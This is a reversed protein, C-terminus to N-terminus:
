VQLGALEAAFQNSRIMTRWRQVTRREVHYQAALESAEQTMIKRLEVKAEDLTPLEAMGIKSNMLDREARTTGGWVGIASSDLAVKLCENKIPCSECIVLAAAIEGPEDSFFLDSDVPQCRGGSLALSTSLKEALSALSNELVLNMVLPRATM